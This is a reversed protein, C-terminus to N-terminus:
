SALGLTTEAPVGLTAAHLPYRAEYWDRFRPPGPVAAAEARWLSYVSEEHPNEPFWRPRPKRTTPRTM